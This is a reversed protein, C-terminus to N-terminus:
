FVMRFTLQLNRNNSASPIVGLTGKNALRTELVGFDPTGTFFAPSGLRLVLM